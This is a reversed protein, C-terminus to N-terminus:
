GGYRRVAQYMARVNEIRAEDPVGIAGDLIFGGGKGVVEILRKCYALVDDPTGMNLMSPPINGRICVIDGLVEKARFIDTREFWYIAKGAPIDAIIELRSTVDGEWLLCPVLGAEILQLTLQRLQPWFFTKFQAPSMFGDLGWHIPIFVIKCPSRQGVAIAQRAIFVRAKDMAALLKDKHRFMDLMAGKSGRMNDAFYDFPAVATASQGLPFGADAMEQALGMGNRLMRRMEDGALALTRMAEVMAPAAFGRVAHLFQLYYAAPLDPFRKFAELGSAVRPLYTTLMFGTPDFLYDDYEAATMYEQDLFQYSSNESVGHGPWRLMRFGLLEMTPGLAIVPHPLVFADPELDPLLRRMGNSLKEYDYMADRCSFGGYTGHWFMSYYIIPVRDPCRLAIADDLRRAREAYAAKAANADIM